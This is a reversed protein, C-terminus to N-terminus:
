CYNVNRTKITLKKLISIYYSAIKIFAKTILFL